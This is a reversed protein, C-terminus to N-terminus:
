ISVNVLEVNSLDVDSRPCFMGSKSCCSVLLCGIPMDTRHSFDASPSIPSNLNAGVGLPSSARVRAASPMTVPKDTPNTGILFRVLVTFPLFCISRKSALSSWTPNIM